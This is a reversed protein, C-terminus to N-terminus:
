RGRDCRQAIAFDPFNLSEFRRILLYPLNIMLYAVSSGRTEPWAAMHQQQLAASASQQHIRSERQWAATTKHSSSSDAAARGQGVAALSGWNSVTPPASTLLRSALQIGISSHIFKKSYAQEWSSRSRWSRACLTLLPLRWDDDNDLLMGATTLRPCLRCGRLLAAHPLQAAAAEGMAAALEAHLSGFVTMSL